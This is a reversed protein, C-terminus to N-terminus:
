ASLTYVHKKLMVLHRPRIVSRKVSHLVNFLFHRSGANESIIFFCSESPGVYDKETTSEKTAVPMACEYVELPNGM